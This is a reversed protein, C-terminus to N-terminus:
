ATLTEPTLTVNPQLGKIANAVQTCESNTMWIREFNLTMLVMTDPQTTRHLLWSRHASNFQRCNIHYVFTGSPRESVTRTRLDTGAHIALIEM